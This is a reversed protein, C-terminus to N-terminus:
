KPCEPLPKVCFPNFSATSRSFGNKLSLDGDSFGGLFNLPYFRDKDTPDGKGFPSEIALQSLRRKKPPAIVLTWRFQHDLSRTIGLQSCCDNRTGSLSRLLKM